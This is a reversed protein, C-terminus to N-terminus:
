GSVHTEAGAYVCTLYFSADRSAMASRSRIARPCTLIFITSGTSRPTRSSRHTSRLRPDAHRYLVRAVSLVLHRVPLTGPLAADYCTVFSNPKERPKFRLADADLVDRGSYDSLYSLSRFLTKETVQDSCPGRHGRRGGALGDSTKAHRANEMYPQVRTHTVGRHKPCPHSPYPHPIPITWGADCRAGTGVTYPNERHRRSDITAPGVRFDSSVSGGIRRICYGLHEAVISV